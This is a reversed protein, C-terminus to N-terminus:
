WRRGCRARCQADCLRILVAALLLSLNAPVNMHSRRHRNLMCFAPVPRGSALMCPCPSAHLMIRQM